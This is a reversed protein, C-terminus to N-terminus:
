LLQIGVAEMSYNALPDKQNRIEKKSAGAQKLEARAERVPLIKRKIIGKVLVKKDILSSPVTFKSNKFTVVTDLKPSQLSLWCGNAQCVKKVQGSVVVEKKRYNKYQSIVETLPVAKTITIKEGFSTESSSLLTTSLLFLTLFHSKM